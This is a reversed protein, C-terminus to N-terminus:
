PLVISRKKKMFHTIETQTMQILNTGTGMNSININKNIKM